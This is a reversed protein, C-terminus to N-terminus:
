SSSVVSPNDVSCSLFPYFSKFSLFHYPVNKQRGFKRDRGIAPPEQGGTTGRKALIQHQAAKGTGNSQWIAFRCSAAEVKASRGFDSLDKLKGPNACVPKGQGKTLRHFDTCIQPYGM